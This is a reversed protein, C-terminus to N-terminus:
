EDKNIGSGGTKGGGGERPAASKGFLSSSSPFYFFAGPDTPLAASPHLLGADQSLKDLLHLGHALPVLLPSLVVEAAVEHHTPIM